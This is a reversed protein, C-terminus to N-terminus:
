DTSLLIRGKKQKKREYVFFRLARRMARPLNVRCLFIFVQIGPNLVATGTGLFGTYEPLRGFQDGGSITPAFQPGTSVFWLHNPSDQNTSHLIFYGVLRDRPLQASRLYRITRFITGGGARM